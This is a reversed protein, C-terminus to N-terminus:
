ARKLCGFTSGCARDEAYERIARDSSFWSVHATNLVSSRWWSTKDLWRADVARQAAFYADFDATVLFCDSCTLADVLSGFRSPDHPLFVGSAVAELAGAIMPSAAITECADIGQARRKEVEAATLGFIFINVDGVRDRIEINAAIISAV